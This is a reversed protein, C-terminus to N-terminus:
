DNVAVADLAPVHEDDEGLFSEARAQDDHGTGGPGRLYEARIRPYATQFMALADRRRRSSLLRHARSLRACAKWVARRLTWKHVSFASSRRTGDPRPWSLQVYPKPTGSGDDKWCFNLGVVGTKSRARASVRVPDLPDPLEDLLLDRYAVAEALAVERGGYRKDAFYKTHQERHRKVRVQWGHTPHRDPHADTPEIDIRFVNRPKPCSSSTDPSSSTNPSPTRSPLVDSM